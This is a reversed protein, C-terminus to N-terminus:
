GALTPDSETSGSILSWASLSNPDATDSLYAHWLTSADMGCVVFHLRGDLVTAAPGDCTAGTPLVKWAGWSSTYERYYIRDDLGRVALYLKSSIQSVALVPRSRTAGDVLTWVPSGSGDCSVATYWLTYGDMGRVFIHLDSGLMAAAPSDPTAGTPVAQWSGWSGTYCRYYIRNDLGRVALCLATGNSTLTPASHTAGSLLTWGSFTDPDDPDSLYGHWLSSEDMGRVVIHLQNQYVATAPSDCTAGPLLIWNGWTDGASDYIRYYISDDLGRVVLYTRPMAQIVFVATLNFNDTMYVTYPNESGVGTGNLLWYDFLWGSDATAEVPVNTGSPYLTTGTANTAGSGSVEVLLGFEVQVFVATLNFNHTMNVTYPNESGVGTDNLLWYDLLWGSDATALVTVNRFRDYPTTGTVNTVGSGSVGVLLSAQVESVAVSATNSQATDNVNDTVNAYVQYTGASDPLFTWTSNVADPVLTNNLYWEYSYPQTGGSATATFLQSEGVVLSGSAPGVVVSLDSVTVSVTNSQAWDSVGDTVNAYVEYAGALGSTFNWASDVAGPVLTGNLYWAYSYPQTGGSVTATFLQSEGVTLSVPGAPSVSVSLLYGEGDLGNNYDQLIEAATLTGNYVAIEDLLGTYRYHSEGLKLYGINLNVTSSFDGTYSADASEEELGDVYIRIKGRSEDRVAVIHHWDGDNIPTTGTVVVYADVRSKLIFNAANGFAGVWWHVPWDDRGVMVNNPLSATTKMWLEVTFSDTSTWDFCDGTDPVDVETSGDFFLAGNVIGPSPTPVGLVPTGDRGDYSDVIPPISTDDMKWYSIMSSQFVARPLVDDLADYWVNAMKGYGLANPHLWDSMDDIYNLADTMNVVIISRGLNKWTQAYGELLLNYAHTRENQASNTTNIIKALIVTITQDFTYIKELSDDVDEAAETPGIGGSYLSNTGIHYLIIHPHHRPLLDDLMPNLERAEIGGHGEHDTDFVPPFASSGGSLNGVFDVNFGANTLNVYLDQRYGAPSPVEPYVYGNTISDGLPMIKVSELSSYSAEIKFAGWFGSCLVAFVVILGLLKRTDFRYM